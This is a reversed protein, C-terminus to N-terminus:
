MNQTEVSQSEINMENEMPSEEKEVSKYINVSIYM